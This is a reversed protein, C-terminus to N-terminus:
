KLKVSEEDNVTIEELDEHPEPKDLATFPAGTIKSYVKLITLRLVCVAGSVVLGGVPAVVFAGFAGWDDTYIGNWILLLKGGEKASDYYVAGFIFVGLLGGLGGSIVEWGTLFYLRDWLGLMIIPIVASSLLDAIFYIQLVDDAVKLGVVIVPVIVLVVIVRCYIVPIKNRFVDNSITSTLASQLSDLTCVSITVIFVLTFGSVWSPITQLIIFLSASSDVSGIPVLGAWVAIIGAMGVVTAIVALLFSAISCGIWLDRDTKAAFTRLWFGAMFMDNTFIAVVLIYVLQWGLKSSKLLGSEAIAATDIHVYGGIACSVIVIMLFVASIQATDTIFSVKFGGVATYISTIACQVIVAPLANLGTLTEIAYQLSAIESVM